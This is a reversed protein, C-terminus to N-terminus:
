EKVKILRFLSQGSGPKPDSGAGPPPALLTKM